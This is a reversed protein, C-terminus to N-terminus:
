WPLGGLDIPGDPWEAAGGQCPAFLAVEQDLKVRGGPQECWIPAEAVRWGIHEYFGTEEKPCIIVAFPAWLQMGVFATAKALTARAYGRQRWGPLTMVGGIGGVPVRLDGIQIVRYIIGAHAVVRQDSKVFSSWTPPAYSYLDARLAFPRVREVSRQLTHRTFAQVQQCEDPSLNEWALQLVNIGTTVTDAALTRQYWGHPDDLAVRSTSVAPTWREAPQPPQQVAAPAGAPAVVLPLTDLLQSVKHIVM